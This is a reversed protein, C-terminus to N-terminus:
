LLLMANQQNITYGLQDSNYLPNENFLVQSNLGSTEYYPKYWEYPYVEKGGYEPRLIAKSFGKNYTFYKYFAPQDLYKKKLNYSKYHGLLGCYSNIKARIEFLQETSLEDFILSYEVERMTKCFKDITRQRPVTYYPRIYAGLYQNANYASLLRWKDHNVKVHVEKELFDEIQPIADILFQESQHMHFMDDVYHGYHKIKLVRKVWQDYINLLINSFLQSTIDGIVIGRGEPSFALCKRRPLGTWNEIPGMKICDDSPNRDLLCHMLYEVFYPDIREKWKRGDRSKHELHKFVECMITNIVLEKDISMFYGSLDLYLVWADETFNNTVSRLHHQYRKIGFLTGKEQRCSYTDYIFLEEFLPALYNFLMHQVVRDRFQSAYIERQIPDFTIFCFAPLPQYTRRILDTCLDELQHEMFIEFNLAALTNRKHKRADFYGQYLDEHIQEDSITM